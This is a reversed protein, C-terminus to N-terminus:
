LIWPTTFIMKTTTANFINVVWVRPNPKSLHCPDNLGAWPGVLVKIGGEFARGENRVLAWLREILLYPAISRMSRILQVLSLWTEPFRHLHGIEDRAAEGEKADTEARWSEELATTYLTVRSRRLVVEDTVHEPLSAYMKLEVHWWWRIRWSSLGQRPTIAAAVTIIFCSTSGARM